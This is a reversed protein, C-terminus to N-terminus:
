KAILNKIKRSYLYDDRKDELKLIRNDNVSYMETNTQLKDYLPKVKSILQSDVKAILGKFYESYRSDPEEGEIVMYTALIELYLDNDDYDKCKEFHRAVIYNIADKIKEKECHLKENRRSLAFLEVSSLVFECISIENSRDM